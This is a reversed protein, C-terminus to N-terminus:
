DVPQCNHGLEYWSLPDRVFVAWYDQCIQKEKHQDNVDSMYDNLLHLQQPGRLYIFSLSKWNIKWESFVKSVAKKKGADFGRKYMSGSTVRINRQESAWTTWVVQLDPLHSVVGQHQQPCRRQIFSLARDNAVQQFDALSFLWVVPHSQSFLWDTVCMVLHTISYFSWSLLSLAM